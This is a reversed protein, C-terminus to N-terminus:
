KRIKFTDILIFKLGLLIGWDRFVYRLNEWGYRTKLDCTM